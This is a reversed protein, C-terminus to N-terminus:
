KQKPFEDASFPTMTPEKLIGMGSQMELMAKEQEEGWEPMDLLCFDYSSTPGIGKETAIGIVTTTEKFKGRAVFCFNALAARRHSGDRGPSAFVFCYTRGEFNPIVRRYLDHTKNEHAEKMAEYFTGSLIRRMFRNPRALERAVKEYAESGTTHAQNILFDWGYSIHDEKQKAWYEPDSQLGQWIGEELLIMNKNEFDSFSRGKQIYWGLLEEEGGNVVLSKIQPSALVREKEAYYDRFDSVTDLEKLIIELFDRTVVNITLSKHTEMTSYFEEGEGMLLSFLFIRKIKSPDLVEPHRRSNSLTLSTGADLLMRRAGSLQRINKQVEGKNYRGDEGLKLDKIQWIFATDEFIVLLDCLEKGYPLRPNLFCWDIFFSKTALEYAVTEANKGKLSFYQPNGNPKSKM